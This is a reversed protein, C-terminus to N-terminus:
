PKELVVSFMITHSLSRYESPKRACDLLADYGADSQKAWFKKEGFIPQSFFSQDLRKRFTFLGYGRAGAKVNSLVNTKFSKKMDKLRLGLM